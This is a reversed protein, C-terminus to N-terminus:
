GGETKGELMTDEDFLREWNPFPQNDWFDSAGM